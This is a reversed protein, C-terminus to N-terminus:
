VLLVFVALSILEILWTTLGIGFGAGYTRQRPLNKKECLRREYVGVIVAWSILEFVLTVSM